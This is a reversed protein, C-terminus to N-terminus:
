RRRAVLASRGAASPAEVPDDFGAEALWGAMEATSYCRGQTVHMLLVSYGAIPLPGSKGANLFADHVLLRGGSPLADASRRLLQRM